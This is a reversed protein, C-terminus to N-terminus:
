EIPSVRHTGGGELQPLSYYYGDHTIETEQREGCPNTMNSQLSLDYDGGINPIHDGGSIVVSEKRASFTYWKGSSKILSRIWTWGKFKGLRVLLPWFVPLCACIIGTGSHVTTWLETRSFSPQRSGPVYGYGVKLLGSVIVFIGVLFVSGIAIRKRATLHLKAVVAIPISIIFLDLVAEIIGTVFWFINYNFCYRPDALNNIWTYKIPICNLFNAVIAGIGYAVVAVCGIMIQRRSSEGVSFLRRYLCLISLKTSSTIAFYFFTAVFNIKTYVVDAPSYQIGPTSAVYAGNPDISNSLLVLIDTLIVLILSVLVLWDDIKFGARKYYRAYFRLGVSIIAVAAIAAGVGTTANDM